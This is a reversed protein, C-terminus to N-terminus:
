ENFVLEGCLPECVVFPDTLLVLHPEIIPIGKAKNAPIM